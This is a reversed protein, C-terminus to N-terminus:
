ALLNEFVKLYQGTIFTEEFEEIAIRRSEQGMKKRLAADDILTEISSALLNIDKVPVLFGNIGDKTVYKCGGVNTTVIPLGASASELLFRPLGEHYSPLVVIDVQSLISPMDDIHGKFNISHEYTSKEQQSIPVLSGEDEGGIHWFEAKKGKAQLIKGAEAYEYIGKEQILRSAMLVVLNKSEKAPPGPQFKETNVGGGLIVSSSKQDTLNLKILHEQDDPNHFITHSNKNKLFRGLVLSLFPRFQKSLRTDTFPFSVGTFTSIYKPHNSLRAAIPGYLIPKITFHQVIDPKERRYIGALSLIAKLESFPNLSRRSLNWNVCRFGENILQDAYKTFPSVLVVEHGDKQLARALPLRHLYHGTDENTVLMIKPM